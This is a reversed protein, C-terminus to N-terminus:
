PESGSLRLLANRLPRHRDFRRVFESERTGGKALIIERLAKRNAASWRRAGPIVQVLPAWRNWAIREGNGKIVLGVLEAIPGTPGHEGPLYKPYLLTLPGPDVPMELRAHLIRQPAHRMDVHIEVPETAREAAAGPAPLFCSLTPLLLSLAPLFASPMALTATSYLRRTFHM